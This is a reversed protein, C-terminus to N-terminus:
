KNAVNGPSRVVRKQLGIRRKRLTPQVATRSAAPPAGVGMANLRSEIDRAAEQMRPLYSSVAADTDLASSFWTLGISAMVHGNEFVPVALTNSVPRVDKSRLAYGQARTQELMAQLKAADHVPQDEPHASQRLSQVIIQCEDPPCFALYARGLSRSVLSLRMNLSSHLLSLPSQSITSYRVIVADGDFVALAVPWKVAATIADVVTAAAEIIRPESHYGSSLALVGSTVYYAGYQPAHKVLGKGILTQLLRVLSPRPLGTARYLEDLTSVPQRNLCQLLDLAREVARVPPFSAM